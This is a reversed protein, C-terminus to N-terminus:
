RAYHTLYEPISITDALEPDAIPQLAQLRLPLVGAWIPLEQDAEDDHPPGTRVKASASEMAIAVVTTADLEKQTTPRVEQWRGPLLHETVAALAALKEADDDILRGHGYIVVSRYNMSSNFASRAVVLGDLLTITVCLPHGAQVYKLLRSAPAGHLVLEDGIRAHITPIVVPQGDVVIGVHCILAEDIIPYISERDYHGREPMRRIRNQDTKAFDTM